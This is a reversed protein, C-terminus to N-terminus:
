STGLPRRRIVYMGLVFCILGYAFLWAISGWPVVVGPDRQVLAYVADVRHVPPLVYLLWRAPNTSDGWLSWGINAALIVTVLSLWDYRLAASLLFGVGGYMLYMLAVVAFLEWPFVPRVVLSWMGILALATILVGIGYVAFTTAYYLPPSVPKAFLFKYHGHKRDNAIIGNTAFFTALFAFTGVLGRLMRRAADAPINSASVSMAATFGKISLFAILVIVIVTGPGHNTLYDRMFYPAYAGLKARRHDVLSM